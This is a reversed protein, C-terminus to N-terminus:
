RKLHYINEVAFFIMKRKQVCVQLCIDVLTDTKTQLSKEKQRLYLLLSGYELFETIIYVPRQRKCVGYLQVLNPHQLKTMVQLWLWLYLNIFYLGRLVITSHHVPHKHHCIHNLPAVYSYFKM